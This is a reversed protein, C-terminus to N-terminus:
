TARHSDKKTIKEKKKMHQINIKGSKQTHIGATQEVVTVTRTCAMAYLQTHSNVSKKQVNAITQGAKVNQKINEIVNTEKRAFDIKGIGDIVKKKAKKGRM